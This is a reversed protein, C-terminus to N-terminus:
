FFIAPPVGHDQPLVSAMIVAIRLHTREPPRAARPNGFKGLRPLRRLGCARATVGDNKPRRVHHAPGAMGAIDGGGIQDGFPEAVRQGGIVM